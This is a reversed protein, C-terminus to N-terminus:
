KIGLFGTGAALKVRALVFGFRNGCSACGSLQSFTFPGVFGLGDGVFYNILNNESMLILILFVKMEDV